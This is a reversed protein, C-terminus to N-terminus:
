LGMGLAVGIPATPPFITLLMAVISLAVETQQKAEKAAESHKQAERIMLQVDRDQTGIFANIVPLLQLFEYDPKEIKEILEEYDSRRKKILVLVKAVLAEPTYTSNIVGRPIVKYQTELPLIKPAITDVSHAISTLGPEGEIWKKTLDGTAYGGKQD